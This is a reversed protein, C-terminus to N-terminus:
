LHDFLRGRDKRYCKFALLLFAFLNGWAVSEYRHLIIPRIADALPALMGQFVLNSTFHHGLLLTGLFFVIGFLIAFQMRTSYALVFLFEEAWTM